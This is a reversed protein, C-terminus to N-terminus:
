AFYRPLMPIKVLWSIPYSPIGVVKWQGSLKADFRLTNQSISDGDGVVRGSGEGLLGGPPVDM